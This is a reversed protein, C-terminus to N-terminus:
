RISSQAPPQTLPDGAPAIGHSHGAQRQGELVGGSMM